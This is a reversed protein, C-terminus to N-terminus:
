FASIILHRHIFSVLSEVLPMKVRLLFLCKFFKRHWNWSKIKTVELYQKRGHENMFSKKEHQTEPFWIMRHEILFFLIERSNLAM